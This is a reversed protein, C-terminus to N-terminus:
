WDISVRARPQHRLSVAPLLHLVLRRRRRRQRWDSDGLLRTGAYINDGTTLILRVGQTDITRRIANAVKQQRRTPSDRKVGVGFDGM